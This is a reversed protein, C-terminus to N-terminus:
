RPQSMRSNGAGNAVAGDTRRPRRSPPPLRVCLMYDQFTRPLNMRKGVARKLAHATQAVDKFKEDDAIALHLINPRYLTLARLEVQRGRRQGKSRRANLIMTKGIL